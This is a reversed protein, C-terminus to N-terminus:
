LRVGPVVRLKSELDKPIVNTKAASNERVASHWWHKARGPSPALIANVGPDSRGHMVMKKLTPTYDLRSEPRKARITVTHLKLARIRTRSGLVTALGERRLRAVEDYGAWYAHVGSPQLVEIKEPQLSM